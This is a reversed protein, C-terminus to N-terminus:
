FTAYFNLTARNEQYNGSGTTATTGGQNFTNNGTQKTYGYRISATLWRLIQWNIAAGWQLSKETGSNNVNGTGTPENESYSANLVTNIFPTLQYLFSGYYSRTQVTGFDQGQQASQRFDQFVGVTAIARTFRYSANVNASVTGENTQTNSNLVSYGVAASLSLGTPLGYSGFASANWITTDDQTQWQYSGSIGGSTYLGFQRSGSVFITNSTNDGGNVNNGNTQATTSFEYGARVLYDTAIRTAANTGVINTVTDNQNNQPSGNNGSGGNENIFFVNRYYAQTAIQGVLWDLSVGLTNTDSIQRGQRIGNQDLTNPADSRVFSDTLTLALRPNLLYRVAMNMTPFVKVEDGSNPATDHVLDITTSMAGFTRAGNLLLTFGPGLISRFNEEAGSSNLFFNDSYEEGVRLTPHVELTAGRITTVRPAFAGPLTLGPIGVYGTGPGGLGPFPTPVNTQSPPPPVPPIWPPITMSPATTPAMPPGLPSRQQYQQLLMEGPTVQGPVPETTQPQQPVAPQESQQQQQPAQQTPEAPATPAPTQASVACPASLGGILLLAVSVRAPSLLRRARVTPGTDTTGGVGSSSDSHSLSSTTRNYGSM